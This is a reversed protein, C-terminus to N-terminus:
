PLTKDALDAVTSEVVENSYNTNVDNNAVNTERAEAVVAGSSDINDNNADNEDINVFNVPIATLNSDALGLSQSGQREAVGEHDVENVEAPSSSEIAHTAVPSAHSENAKNNEILVESEIANTALNGKNAEADNFNYDNKQIVNNADDTEAGEDNGANKDIQVTKRLL